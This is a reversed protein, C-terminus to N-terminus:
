VNRNQPPKLERILYSELAPALYVDESRLGITYIASVNLWDPKLTSWDKGRNKDSSIVHDMLRRTIGYGPYAVNGRSAGLGVYILAESEFLAYCGGLGHNPVTSFLFPTWEQWEPPPGAEENSRWHRAFFVKSAEQLDSLSIM